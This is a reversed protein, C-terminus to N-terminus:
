KRGPRLDQSLWGRRWSARGSTERPYVEGAGLGPRKVPLGLHAPGPGDRDSSHGLMVPILGAMQDARLLLRGLSCVFTQVLCAATLAVISGLFHWAHRLFSHNLRLPPPPSPPFPLPPTPPPPPPPPTQAPGRPGQCKQHISFPYCQELFCSSLFCLHLGLLDHTRQPFRPQTSRSLPARPLQGKAEM